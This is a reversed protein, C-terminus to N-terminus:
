YIYFAAIGSCHNPITCEIHKCQALVTATVTNQHPVNGKEKRKKKKNKKNKTEFLVTTVRKKKDEM